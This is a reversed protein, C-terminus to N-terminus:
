KTKSSVFNIKLFLLILSYCKGRKIQMPGKMDKEQQYHYAMYHKLPTHSYFYGNKNIHNYLYGTSIGLIPQPVSLSLSLFVM